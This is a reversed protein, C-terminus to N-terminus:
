YLRSFLESNDVSLGEFALSRTIEKKDYIKYSDIEFEKFYYLMINEQKPDVIWYEEVGSLMYTNLKDVMDKKRTRDSLIEVVLAPTGMYRGAETVNNELDCVVSLDPQMVDPEKFGKKRFHVDFPALFVRCEKDKFYNSFQIYLRGLMEQHNIGPSSLIYIEGNIFEMRLSSKEYIEMFEEYSVKKGGYQYDLAKERVVFYQEIDTIYPTLRAIKKGNKTIIVDNQEEGVFSLYKGLGQKLETATIVPSKKYNGKKM